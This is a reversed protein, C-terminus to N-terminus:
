SCWAWVYCCQEMFPWITSKYLYLVVKLSLFKMSHILAGNKKSAIKAISIIYSGLDLRSSFSLGLMKFIIKGELISGHMKVNIAGTNNFRDNELMSILLGWDM